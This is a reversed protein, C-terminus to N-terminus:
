KKEPTAYYYYYKYYSGYGTKVTFNNLVSGILKSNDHRLIAVAREMVKKDTVGASLVLLTGDVKKSLIEADTVAIIPPSDFVVYDYDKRVMAIFAEMHESDLVEAPNPPITGSTIMKLSALKTPHVIEDFKAEGFLYDILGPKKDRQIINHLRPKRLDCDVILTKKNAHAFSGALNIAITTKGEQPAPSTILITKLNEKDPRSFQVRTRLARFAESPISDPRLAVIFEYESRKLGNEFIGEIEPIWTLVNINKKEIDEPSKITDDFYNKAFVFGVALGSGLVFGVLIILMRNPKSPSDPERADDVILVNGPQSQENILAEQYKEEVLVYLKELSERNRQFRALDLSTKPLRNFRQDYREVIAELGNLKIKLSRNKVEEEILKQSLNRVAEPSGAFIASKLSKIKEDLKEKLDNMKREYEKVQASIDIGPEVRVLALDKNIQLEAIQNQLATIYAESTASQLYEALRPDQRLLEEKYQKLVENSAMIEIQAANKEAEFQSIQQILNQAQQDLAIIGGREQYSRLIEEAENLQDKKENRQRELFNKVFTLQDRNIELNYRKYENTYINAIMAAEEPAPSEAFIEIIDLGRKQEIAVVSSLIGAIQQVTLLDHGNGAFERKFILDFHGPNNLSVFTDVLAEAVRERLKYSKLIEIENAIFRDSGFDSVEPLLPAQLINGGPKSIKLSTGAKYIDTASAAYIFAAILSAIIIMLVPALNQRLLIVYDKLTNSGSQEDFLEDTHQTNM